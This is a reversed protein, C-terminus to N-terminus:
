GWAFVAYGTVAVTRAGGNPLYFFGLHAGDYIRPAHLGHQPLSLKQTSVKSAVLLGDDNNINMLPKVLYLCWLGGPASTFTLSNIQRVGGCGAGRPLFLNGLSATGGIIGAAKNLGANAVGFTVTRETGDCSVYTYTGTGVATQAAVHNVLVPFVGRGTTYRPLTATNDMLQPDISDGDLLPYTAVLDYLMMSLTAQNTGSAVTTVVLETLRREQVAAIDPFYIAKNRVAVVPTLTAADGIRADTAPQGTAYAWDQWYGDGALGAAKYFRQLHTRGEDYASLFDRTSQLAM